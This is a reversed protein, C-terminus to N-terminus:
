VKYIKNFGERFKNTGGFSPHRIYEINAYKSKLTDRARCGIAYYQQINFCNLLKELIEKGQACERGNPNRNKREEPLVHSSDIISPHFPYINWMLPYDKLSIISLREWVISATNEKQPTPTTLIKRIGAFFPHHAITNEDTFPVGTNFCGNHGPAEGIFIRTPNLKRMENLYYRLLEKRVEVEKSDGMYINLSMKDPTSVSAIYEIFDDIKNM